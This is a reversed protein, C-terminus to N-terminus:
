YTGEIENYNYWYVRYLSKKPNQYRGVVRDIAYDIDGIETSTKTTYTKPSITADFLDHKDETSNKATSCTRKEPDRETYSDIKNKSSTSRGREQSSLSGIEQIPRQQAPFKSVDGHQLRNPSRFFDKQYDSKDKM